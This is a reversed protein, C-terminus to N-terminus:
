MWLHYYFEKGELITDVDVEDPLLQNALMNGITVKNIM